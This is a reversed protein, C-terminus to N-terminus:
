RGIVSNLASMVAWRIVFFEAVLFVLGAVLWGVWYQVTPSLTM